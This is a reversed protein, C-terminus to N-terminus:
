SHIYFTTKNILLTSINFMYTGPCCHINCDVTKTNEGQCESGGCSPTPQTCSRLQTLVGGGCSVSCDTQNYWSSWGGDVLFM